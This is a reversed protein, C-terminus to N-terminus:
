TLPPAWSTATGPGNTVIYLPCRFTMILLADRVSAAAARSTIASAGAAAPWAFAADDAGLEVAAGDGVGVRPEFM